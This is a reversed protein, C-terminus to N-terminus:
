FSPTLSCHGDPHCVQQYDVPTSPKSVTLNPAVPGEYLEAKAENYRDLTNPDVLQFACANRLCCLSWLGALFWWKQLMSSPIIIKQIVVLCSSVVPIYLHQGLSLCVADLNQLM